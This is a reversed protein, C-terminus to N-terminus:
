INIKGALRVKEYDTDIIETKMANHKYFLGRFSNIKNWQMKNQCSKM